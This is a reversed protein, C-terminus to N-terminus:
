DVTIGCHIAIRRPVDHLRLKRKQKAFQVCQQCIGGGRMLSIMRSRRPTVASVAMRRARWKPPSAREHSLRWAANSRRTASILFARRISRSIVGRAAYAFISRGFAAVPFGCSRVSCHVPGADLTRTFQFGTPATGAMSRQDTIDWRRTGALGPPRYGNTHQSQRRDNLRGRCSDSPAIAGRGHGKHPCGARHTWRLNLVGFAVSM